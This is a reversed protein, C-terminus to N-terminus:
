KCCKQCPMYGSSIADELVKEKANKLGSCYKNSHYKQSNSSIWVIKEQTININLIQTLYAVDEPFLNCHRTLEKELTMRLRNYPEKYKFISLLSLLKNLGHINISAEEGFIEAAHLSSKSNYNYIRGGHAAMNRYDICIYLTDMMLTCLSEESLKLSEADYLYSVMLKQQPLKFQDIYNVITTFYISKFLIWPPVMAYKEMYHHIPEKDTNITERMINLINTLSFREKRKRKNRYKRYCLYEDQHTGLSQGVVNAAVEKIHEELDQMSAMVANRLAKDFFFLSAIQRFSVGDRYKCTNGTKIIYPDRYSKILNSYGFRMLSDATLAPNEIILNQSSLKEVQEQPSSYLIKNEM